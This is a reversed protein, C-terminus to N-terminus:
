QTSMYYGDPWVGIKPYDSDVPNGQGDVMPFAYLFWGDTLPDSTRSIAICQLHDHLAFQSVLWRNALHDYRVIPDGENKTECPGKFRKWLSSIPAPGAKLTGKKDFIAFLSNVMQIYHNPGVAGVTDPPLFGTAPIGDFNTFVQPKHAASDASFQSSSAVDPLAQDPQKVVTPSLQTGRQRLDDKVVVPDGEKWVRVPAAGIMTRIDNSASPKPTSAPHVIPASIQQANVSNLAFGILGCILSARFLSPM